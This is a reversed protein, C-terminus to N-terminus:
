WYQTIFLTNDGVNVLHSNIRTGQFRGLTDFTDVKNKTTNRFRSRDLVGFFDSHSLIDTAVSPM